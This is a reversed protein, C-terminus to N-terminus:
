ESKEVEISYDDKVPNALLKRCMDEVLERARERSPANLDIEYVKATSVEELDYDMDRLAKETTLGESNMHGPKLSVEVKARYSGIKAGGILIFSIGM